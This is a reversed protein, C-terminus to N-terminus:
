PTDAGPSASAASASTSASASALAAAQKKDWHKNAGKVTVFRAVSKASLEYSEPRKEWPDGAWKWHVAKGPKPDGAEDLHVHVVIEPVNKVGVSASFEEEDNQDHKTKYTDRVAGPMPRQALEANKMKKEQTRSVQLEDLIYRGWSEAIAKRQKHSMGAPRDKDPHVLMLKKRAQALTYKTVGDIPEVTDDDPTRRIVRRLAPTQSQQVTHTLEHALLHDNAGPAPIGERFFIDQGVTFAKAQVQENLRRAQPGEHLRVRSLDSGMIPELRGRLTGDLPSGGGRAAQLENATGADLPGGDAGVPESTRRLRAIGGQAAPMVQTAPSAVTRRLAAVIKHARTEAEVESPDGVKGVELSPHAGVALGPVPAPAASMPLSKQDATPTPAPTVATPKLQQLHEV